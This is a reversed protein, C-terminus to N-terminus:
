RSVSKSRDRSAAGLESRAAHALSMRQQANDGTDSRDSHTADAKTEVAAIDLHGHPPTTEGRSALGSAAESKPEYDWDVLSDWDKAVAARKIESDNADVIEGLEAAQRAFHMEMKPRATSIRDDMARWAQKELDARRMDVMENIESQSFLLSECKKGFAEISHQTEQWRTGWEEVLAAPLYMRASEQLLDPERGAGSRIGGDHEVPLEGLPPREVSNVAPRDAPGLAGARHDDLAEAQTRFATVFENKLRTAIGDMEVREAQELTARHRAMEQRQADLLEIGAAAEGGALHDQLVRWRTDRQAMFAATLAMRGALNLTDPADGQTALGALQHRVSEALQSLGASQSADRSMELPESYAAVFHKTLEAAIADMTAREQREADSRYHAFAERADRRGAEPFLIAHSTLFAERGGDLEARLQERRAYTITRLNELFERATDEPARLPPPVNEKDAAQGDLGDAQVVRPPTAAPTVGANGDEWIAFPPTEPARRPAALANGPIAEPEPSYATQSSALELPSSSRLTSETLPTSSIDEQGGAWPEEVARKSRKGRLEGDDDDRGSAPLPRKEVMQSVMDALQEPAQFAGAFTLM